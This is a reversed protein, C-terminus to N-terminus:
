MKEPASVGLLRLGEALVTKTAKVLELRTLTMMLDDENIVQCDAYFGHFKDALRILYAPLHHVERWEAMNEILEPFKNLHKLLGLERENVLLKLKQIESKSNTQFKSNLTQSKRLISCIRAHAYQVYYVPNKESREKALDIDFNIHANNSYMLFIFRVADKGVEDILDDVSIYTGQRKSMKYERGDKIVRVMQTLIIELKDKHGIAEVVGLVRKVDGHHDAGWVNIVRDFGREFKNKHYAIDGGFYTLEGTSKRIVRDKEDGFEMARFWIAGEKEYVLKKEQLIKIVAEVQGSKHLKKESFYENFKIGLNEMSPQIIEKLIKGAAWQGVEFADTLKNEKHLKEIYEGKYEAKEDKLVSHGLIKIQNGFDNVYYERWVEQGAKELISALTDGFPAGRGNGLHIPGTPNASVFEVMVKEKKEPDLQGYNSGSRNIEDILSQFHDDKLYFNLFGAGAIEVKDIYENERTYEALLEIMELGLEKSNKGLIKALKMAVNCSYDGMGEPPYSMEIDEKKIKAEPWRQDTVDFIAKQLEKKIM